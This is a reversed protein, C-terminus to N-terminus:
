KTTTSSIDEILVTETSKSRPEQYSAFAQM